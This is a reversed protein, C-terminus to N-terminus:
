WNVKVGNDGTKRQMKMCHELTPEILNDQSDGVLRNERQSSLM